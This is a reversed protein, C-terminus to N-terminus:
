VAAQRIVASLKNVLESLKVVLSEVVQLTNTSGFSVRVANLVLSDKIGMATLIHSAKSV